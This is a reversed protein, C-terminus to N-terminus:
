TLKKLSIRKVVKIVLLILLCIVAFIFMVYFIKEIQNDISLWIYEYYDPPGIPIFFYLEESSKTVAFYFMLLSYLVFLVVESVIFFIRTVTEAYKIRIYKKRQLIDSNVELEKTGLLGTAIKEIIILAVLLVLVFILILAMYNRIFDCVHYIEENSTFFKEGNVKTNLFFEFVVKHFIKGKIQFFLCVISAIIVDITLITKISKM